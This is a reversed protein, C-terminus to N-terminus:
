PLRTEWHTLKGNTYERLIILHAYPDPAPDNTYVIHRWEGNILDRKENQVYGEMIEVGNKDKKQEWPILKTEVL